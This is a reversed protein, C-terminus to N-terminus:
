TLVQIPPCIRVPMTLRRAVECGFATEDAAVFIYPLSRLAPGSMEWDNIVVGAGGAALWAAPHPWVMMPVSWIEACDLQDTGLPLGSYRNTWWRSPNEPFWAVADIPESNIGGVHVPHVFARRGDGAEAFDFTGLAHTEIDAVGVPGPWALTTPEVIGLQDLQDLADYDLAAYAEVLDRAFQLSAPPTTLPETSNRSCVKGGSGACDPPPPM